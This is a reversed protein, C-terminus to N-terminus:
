ATVEPAAPAKTHECQHHDLQCTKSEALVRKASAVEDEAGHVIVLFKDANVAQEYQLVSNKPIGLSVLAGGVAGLSGFIVAGELAGVVMAGLHGIVVIPGIVPLTMFLGGVFLRWLGGWFAGHRGWLKIRDGANYFGTVKDETHYGKGIISIKGLATGASVLRRVADEACAHDEFVAVVAQQKTM